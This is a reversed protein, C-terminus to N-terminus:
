CFFVLRPIGEEFPDLTEHGKGSAFYSTYPVFNHPYGSEQFESLKGGFWKPVQLVLPM